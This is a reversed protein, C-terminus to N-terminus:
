QENHVENDDIKEIKRSILHWKKENLTSFEWEEIELRENVIYYPIIYFKTRIEVEAKYSSDDFEVFDIESNVIKEKRKNRRLETKVQTRLEINEKDIFAIATTMDGSQMANNFAKVATKFLEQRSSSTAGMENFGNIIPMLVCSSTSVLLFVLLCLRLLSRM